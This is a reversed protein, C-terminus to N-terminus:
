KKRLFCVHQVHPIMLGLGTVQFFAFCLLPPFPSTIIFVTAVVSDWPAYLCSALSDHISVVSRGRAKLFATRIGSRQSLVNEKRVM